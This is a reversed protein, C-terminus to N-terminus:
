DVTYKLILEKESCAVVKYKVNQWNAYELISDKLTYTSPTKFFHLPPTGCWGSSWEFMDIDTEFALGYSEDFETVRKFTQFDDEFSSWEWKGILTNEISKPEDESIIQKECASLLIVFAIFFTYKM